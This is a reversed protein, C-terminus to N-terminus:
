LMLIKTKIFQYNFLYYIDVNAYVKCIKKYVMASVMQDLLATPKVGNMQFQNLLHKASQIKYNLGFTIILIIFLLPKNELFNKHPQILQYKIFMVVTIHYGLNVIFSLM